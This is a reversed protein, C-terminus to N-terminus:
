EILEAAIALLTPPADIGLTRASKSNSGSQRTSERRLPQDM